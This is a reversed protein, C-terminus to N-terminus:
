GKTKTIGPYVVIKGEAVRTVYTDGGSSSSVGTEEVEVDYLYTGPAIEATETATLSITIEGNEADTIEATLEIYNSSYPNKKMKCYATFATLDYVSDSDMVELIASFTSGQDITFNTVNAM